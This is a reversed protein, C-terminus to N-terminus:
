AAKDVIRLLFHYDDPVAQKIAVKEYEPHAHLTAILAEITQETARAGIIISKVTERPFSFLHVGFPHGPLVMDADSLARFIRWEREYAWHGSKVLFMRTGDLEAFPEGPRTDRYCVRRLRRFEDHDTRSGHFYTHHSDFEVVFGAHDAAYHAWMLLSDPVESFCAAGLHEDMLEHLQKTIPKTLAGTTAIIESRKAQMVQRLTQHYQDPPLTQRVAEPLREYEQMWVAELEDEVRGLLREQTMLKTISPRGEFPDNFAGLPSYRMKADSITSMRAPAFYKYLRPPCDQM